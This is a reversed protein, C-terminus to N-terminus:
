QILVEASSNKDTIKVMKSIINVNLCSGDRIFHLMDLVEFKNGFSKSFTQQMLLSIDKRM